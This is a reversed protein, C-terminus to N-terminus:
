ARTEPTNNTEALTQSWVMMDAFLFRKFVNRGITQVPFVLVDQAFTDV